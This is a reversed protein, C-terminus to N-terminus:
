NMVKPTQIEIWVGVYPTVLLWVRGMGWALWILGCGWMPPAVACDIVHLSTIYKLGCGWMPPSRIYDTHHIRFIFKLGCGWM